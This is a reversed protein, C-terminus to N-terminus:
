LEDMDTAEADFVGWDTFDFYAQLNLNAENTWRRVIKVVSKASKLKQRYTM